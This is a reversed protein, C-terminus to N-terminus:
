RGSSWISHDSTGLHEIVNVKDVMSPDSTIVLDLLSDLRTPKTVHQTWLNYMVLDLFDDSKQSGAPCPKGTLKEVYNFDGIVMVEKRVEGAKRLVKNLCDNMDKTNSDSHYVVGLLMNLKSGHSTIDCWLPDEYIDLAPDKRRQVGIGDKNYVTNWSAHLISDTEDSM